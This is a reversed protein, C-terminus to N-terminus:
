ASITRSRAVLRRTISCPVLTTLSPNSGLRLPSSTSARACCPTISSAGASRPPMTWSESLRVPNMSSRCARHSPRPSSPIIVEHPSSFRCVWPRGTPTVVIRAARGAIPLDIKPSLMASGAAIRPLRTRSNESSIDLACIWRRLTAASPCMGCSQSM